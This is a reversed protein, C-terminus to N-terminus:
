YQTTFVFNNRSSSLFAFGSLPFAVREFVFVGVACGGHSRGLGLYLVSRLRAEEESFMCLGLMAGLVAM